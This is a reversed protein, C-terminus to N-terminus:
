KSSAVCQTVSLKVDTIADSSPLKWLSSPQAPSKWGPRRREHSCATSPSPSLVNVVGATVGPAVRGFAIAPDGTSKVHRWPRLSSSGDGALGHLRQNLERLSTVSLDVVETQAGVAM